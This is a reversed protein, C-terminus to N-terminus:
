AAGYKRRFEAEVKKRYDPDTRYKPNKVLADLEEETKIGAVGGAQAAAPSVNGTKVADKIANLIFIAHPSESIDDVAGQLAPDNKVKEGILGNVWATVSEKTKKADGAFLRSFEGAIEKEVNEKFETGAAALTEVLRDMKDQPIKGNHGFNDLAKILLADNAEDLHSFTYKEPPPASQGIQRRLDSQSKLLAGLKLRGKEKDFFQEPVNFKEGEYEFDTGLEGSLENEGTDPQNEVNESVETMNNEEDM